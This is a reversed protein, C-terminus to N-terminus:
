TGSAATYVPGEENQANDTNSVFITYNLMPFKGEELEEFDIKQLWGYFSVQDGSPLHVTISGNKNVLSEIDAYMDPDYAAKGKVESSKILSRPWFTHWQNNFMTSTQIAEGGDFGPPMSSTEWFSIAPKLAFAITTRYGDPLKYGTPATRPTVSPPTGPM